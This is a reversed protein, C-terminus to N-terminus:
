ETGLTKANKDWAKSDKILYVNKYMDEPLLKKKIYEPLKVNKRIPRAYGKALNIQGKDSLIFERAVAASYLHPAYKNIITTYGSQEALKAFFDLGPQINKEDGGNAIAVSLVGNQAQTAANVDGITVKYKGSLLDKFTKPQNKVKDTNIVISITGIYSVLWKGDKDKAWDPIDNWYSPKYVLTLYKDVAIPGFAQGIDGIDKTPKNKESEFLSLEEESSMDTDKHKIGYKKEIDQWTEVLNTWTDAMGVSEVQKEQKAKDVIEELKMSNLDRDKNAEQSSGCGTAVAM